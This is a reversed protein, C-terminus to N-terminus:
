RPRLQWLYRTVALYAGSMAVFCSIAVISAKTAWSLRAPYWQSAYAQLLEYLPQQLFFGVVALLTLGLISGFLGIWFGTYLFPRRVFNDSAGVMKSVTIEQERQLLQGRITNSVVFLLGLGLLIALTLVTKQLLNLIAQMRLVWIVDVSATAVEPILDLEMQLKQLASVTLDAPLITLVAPLPNYDLVALSDGMDTMSQFQQLAEEPSMYAVHAINNQLQLHNVLGIAQEEPLNDQLFLTIEGTQHFQSAVSNLNNGVWYLGVPLCLVVAFVGLTVITALPTRSLFKLSRKCETMHQWRWMGFRHTAKTKQRKNQKRTKSRM